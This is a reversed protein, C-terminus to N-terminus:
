ESCLSRSHSEIQGQFRPKKSSHHLIFHRQRHRSHLFQLQATLIKARLFLRQLRPPYSARRHTLLKEHILRTIHQHLQRNAKHRQARMISRYFKRYKGIKGKKSYTVVTKRGLLRHLPLYQEGRNRQLHVREELRLCYSFSKKQGLYTYEM